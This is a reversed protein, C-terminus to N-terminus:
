KKNKKTEGGIQQLTSLWFLTKKRECKFSGSQDRSSLSGGYSSM